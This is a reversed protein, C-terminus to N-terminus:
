QKGNSNFKRIISRERLIARIQDYESSSAHVRRDEKIRLQHVPDLKGLNYRPLAQRIGGELYLFDVNYKVSAETFWSFSIGPNRSMVAFPPQLNSSPSINLSVWAM